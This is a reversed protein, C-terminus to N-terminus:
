GTSDGLYHHRRLFGVLRDAAEGARLGGGLDLGGGVDLVGGVDLGGGVDLVGGVDLAGGARAPGDARTPRGRVPAGTLARLREFATGGPVGPSEARAEVVVEPPRTAAPVFERGQLEGLLAGADTNLALDARAMLPAGVDTNVAVVHVPAGIEHFGAGSVGFGVYLVPAITRGSVGVLFSADFWGADLAARTVGVSAGLWGAVDVVASVAGLGVGGGIVVVRSM